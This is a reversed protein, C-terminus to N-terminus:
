KHGQGPLTFDHHLCQGNPKDAGLQPFKGTGDFKISDEHRAIISASSPGVNNGIASDLLLYSQLLPSAAVERVLLPSSMSMAPGHQGTLTTAQLLGEPSRDLCRGSRNTSRPKIARQGCRPKVSLYSSTGYSTVLCCGRSNSSVRGIWRNRLQARGCRKCDSSGNNSRAQSDFARVM